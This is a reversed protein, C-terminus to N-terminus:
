SNARPRRGGRPPPPPPRPFPVERERPKAQRQGLPGAPGLAPQVVGKVPAGGRRGGQQVGDQIRVLVVGTSTSPGAATARPPGTSTPSRSRLVEPVMSRPGTGRRLGSRTHTCASTVRIAM